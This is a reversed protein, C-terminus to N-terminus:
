YRMQSTVHDNHCITCVAYHMVYHSATVESVKIAEKPKSAKRVKMLLIKRSDKKVVLFDFNIADALM